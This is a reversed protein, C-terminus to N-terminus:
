HMLRGSPFFRVRCLGKLEKQIRRRTAAVIGASGYIGGLGNWRGVGSRKRLQTREQESFPGTKTAYDSMWSQSSVVRLDNALHVVSNITGDRRLQGIRDVIKGFAELDDTKFAFGEIREPRPMLWVTMRTIIAMNNQALMGQYNPGRGYPYVHGVNSGKIAGFGTNIVSGDALVAEYNCTHATRDGYPTHGFGRQLVNGVISADPGAGTVDLMLRGGRTQLEEALQGQTVGPEIVAYALEENIEVIRKMLGLDVILSGNHPACADGYGWNKGRSIAHWRLRYRSVLKMLETVEDRNIPRVIAQPQTSRPLTTRAYQQRVLDDQEFREGFLNALANKCAAPM